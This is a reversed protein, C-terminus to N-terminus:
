AARAIPGRATRACSVEEYLELHRAAVEPWSRGAALRETARTLEARASPSAALDRLRRALGSAGDEFALLPPAGVSRALAPSALVPRRHALALALAGSSAHPRPYPLLV